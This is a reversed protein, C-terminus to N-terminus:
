KQLGRKGKGKTLKKWYNQMSPSLYPTMKFYKVYGVQYWETDIFAAKGDISFPCNDPKASDVLTLDTTVRYFAELFQEDVKESRWISENTEEDHLEMNEAILIFRKRMSNEPPPPEDPLLYLWKKPVKFLHNYRHSEIYKQILGAGKIRKIWFYEEPKNKYHEQVDLYAKIVVGRLEPHKAVIIQTHHQPLSADFGAAVMSDQDYLVRSSSFIDDLKQKVPHDDPILYGKVSKWVSKSVYRSPSGEKLKKQGAEAGGQFCFLMCFFIFLLRGAIIPM